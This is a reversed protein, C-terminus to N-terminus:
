GESGEADHVLRLFPASDAQPKKTAGRPQAAGEEPAPFRDPMDGLIPDIQKSTIHFRRPGRGIKGKAQLAGLVRTPRGQEDKLPLLVMQAELKPRTLGSDSELTLRATAPSELVSELTSQLARRAEPLFMATIPMGRVEMGMIDNLHMGALRLRAVGPAIKELIFAFELVDSIGRPDVDGRSPMLRGNRLADWYAEVRAISPFHVEARMAGISIVNSGSNTDIKM